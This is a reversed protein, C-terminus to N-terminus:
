SPSVSKARYTPLNCPPSLRYTATWTRLSHFSVCPSSRHPPQTASVNSYIQHHVPVNGIFTVEPAKFPYADNFVFQLQYQEGAYLTDPACLINIVWCCMDEAAHLSVGDPPKALLAKTEVALRRMATTALRDTRAFRVDIIDNQVMQLQSPTMGNDRTLTQGQYSFIYDTAAIWTRRSHGTLSNRQLWTDMLRRLGRTSARKLVFIIEPPDPFPCTQQCTRVVVHVNQMALTRAIEDQSPCRPQPAGVSDVSVSGPYSVFEATWYFKDQSMRAVLMVGLREGNKYVTIAGQDIDLLLGVHDGNEARQMGEWDYKKGGPSKLKGDVTDYGWMARWSDGARASVGLILPGQAVTFRAFHQGARMALTSRAVSNGMHYSRSGWATSDEGTLSIANSMDMSFTVPRRLLLLENVLGLWSELRRRPLWGREQDTCHALWSQRAAEEAISWREAAAAAGGSATAADDSCYSTASFYFRQAAVHSTLVLHLIDTPTPLAAAIVLLVDDTCADLVTELSAMGSADAADPAPSQVSRPFPSNRETPSRIGSETLSDCETPSDM